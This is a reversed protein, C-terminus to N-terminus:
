QEDAKRWRAAAAAKARAARQANTLTAVGKKVKAQGGKRGITALYERVPDPAEKKAMTQPFVFIKAFELLNQKSATLQKHCIANM